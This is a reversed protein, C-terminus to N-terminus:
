VQKYVSYKQEPLGIAVTLLMASVEVDGYEMFYDRLQTAAASSSGSDRIQSLIRVLDDIARVKSYIRIGDACLVIFKRPPLIHQTETEPRALVCAAKSSNQPSALPPEIAAVSSDSPPVEAIAQVAAPVSETPM